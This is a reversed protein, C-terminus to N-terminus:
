HQTQQRGSLCRRCCCCAHTLVVHPKLQNPKPVGPRPGWFLSVFAAQKGRRLSTSGMHDALRGVGLGGPDDGATVHCRAFLVIDSTKSNPSGESKEKKKERRQRSITSCECLETLEETGGGGGVVLTHTGTHPPPPSFSYLFPRLWLASWSSSTARGQEGAFPPAEAAGASEVAARAPLPQQRICVCVCKKKKENKHTLRGRRRGSHLKARGLIAALM